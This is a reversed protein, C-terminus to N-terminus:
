SDLTLGENEEEPRVAIGRIVPNALWMGDPRERKLYAVRFGASRIAEETNRTLHCNGGVCKWLPEIRRQWRSRKPHDTALVHEIFCFSGGPRLVRRVESLTKAVDGVSCLVLTSVVSGFSGSPYPLDEGSAEGVETLLNKHSEIKKKLESRMFRDPECLVLRTVEPSYHRVNLGTGAGIELVPGRLDSVLERRWDGLFTKELSAIFWDYTKAFLWGM